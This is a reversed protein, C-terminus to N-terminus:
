QHLATIYTFLLGAKGNKIDEAVAKKPLGYPRHFRNSLRLQQMAGNLWFSSPTKKSM